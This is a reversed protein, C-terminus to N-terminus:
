DNSAIAESYVPIFAASLAGEGFLRRFLNPIRFALAWSDMVSEAGFIHAFASVRVVALVRSFITAVAIIKAKGVFGSPSKESSPM